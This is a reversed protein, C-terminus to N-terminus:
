SKNEKFCIYFYIYYRKIYTKLLAEPNIDKQVNQYFSVISNCLCATTGDLKHCNGLHSPFMQKGAKPTISAGCHAIINKIKGM